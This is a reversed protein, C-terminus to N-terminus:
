EASKSQDANRQAPAVSSVVGEDFLLLFPRSQTDTGFTLLEANEYTMLKYFKVGAAEFSSEDQGSKAIKRLVRSSGRHLTVPSLLGCDGAEACQVKRNEGRLERREEDCNGVKTPWHARFRETKM